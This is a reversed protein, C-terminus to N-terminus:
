GRGRKEFLESSSVSDFGEGTKGGGESFSSQVGSSSLCIASSGQGSSSTGGEITHSQGVPKLFKLAGDVVSASLELANQREPEGNSFTHLRVDLSLVAALDAELPEPDPLVFPRWHDHPLLPATSGPLRKRQM